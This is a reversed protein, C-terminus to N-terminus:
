KDMWFEAIVPIAYLISNGKKTGGACTLSAVVVTNVFQVDRDLVVLSSRQMQLQSTARTHSTMVNYVDVNVIIFCHILLSMDCYYSM